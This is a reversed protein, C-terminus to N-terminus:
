GSGGLLLQAVPVQGLVLPGHGGEDDAAQIVVAIEAAVNFGEHVVEGEACADGGVRFLHLRHELDDLLELRGAHARAVEALAEEDLQLVLLLGRGHGIGDADEAVPEVLELAALERLQHVAEVQVRVLELGDSWSM